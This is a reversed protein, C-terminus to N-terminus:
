SLLLSRKQIDIEEVLVEADNVKVKYKNGSIGIITGLQNNLTLVKVVENLGFVGSKDSKKEILM